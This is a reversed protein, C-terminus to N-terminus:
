KKFGEVKIDNLHGSIEAWVHPENKLPLWEPSDSHKLQIVDGELYALKIGAPEIVMPTYSYKEKPIRPKRLGKREEASLQSFERLEMYAKEIAESNVILRIEAIM